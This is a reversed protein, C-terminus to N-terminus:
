GSRRALVLHLASREWMDAKCFLRYGLRSLRDSLSQLNRKEDLDHVEISLNRIRAALEPTIQEIIEYEGGECDCKLLDIVESQSEEMARALTLAAVKVRRGKGASEGRAVHGGVSEEDVEFETSGDVNTVAAEVVRVNSLGNLELNERLLVCNGPDPEYCTVKANPIQSLVLASVGVNAGIDIIHHVRNSEWKLQQLQYADYEVVEAITDYLPTRYDARVKLVRGSTQFTLVQERVVASPRFGYTYVYVTMRERVIKQLPKPLWKTLKPM